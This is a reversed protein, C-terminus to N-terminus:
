EFKGGNDKGTLKQRLQKIVQLPRHLYDRHSVIKSAERMEDDVIKQQAESLEPPGEAKYSREWPLPVLHPAQDVFKKKSPTYVYRPTSRASSSPSHNPQYHSEELYKDRRNDLDEAHEPNRAYRPTPPTEVYQRKQHYIFDEMSSVSDFSHTSSPRSVTTDEDGKPLLPILTQAQHEKTFEKERTIGLHKFHGKVNALPSQRIRRFQPSRIPPTHIRKWRSRIRRRQSDDTHRHHLRNTDNPKGERVLKSHKM